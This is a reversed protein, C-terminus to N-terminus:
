LLKRLGNVSRHGAVLMLARKDASLEEASALFRRVGDHKLAYRHMDEALRQIADAERSLLRKTTEGPEIAEVVLRLHDLCLGFFHDEPSLEEAEVVRAINAVATREIDLRACCLDCTEASPRLKKMEAAYAVAPTTAVIQRLDVALRELLPSFGVCTGHPSAMAEYQWTHFACLGRHEVFKTQIDRRTSVDYQYRCLFDYMGRDIRDCISCGVFRPNGASSNPEAVTFLPRANPQYEAIRRVTARLRESVEEANPVDGLAEAIRAGMRMLFEGQRENLLFHALEERLHAVGSEIYRNGDCQSNAAMAERASVSFIQPSPDGFVALAQDQVHALVQDREEPSVIDHKNVVLFIRSKSSAAGQLLRLEEESLPSDYSTVLMLADAEPLFRETTRTNAEISSGLGPTDVFYFGRRLLEAPLEIRAVAVRQANGPNHQQTIYAPLEDLPIQRALPRSWGEHEIFACEKSGYSVTTIVSTLPVIGTPLRDTDLMANMLSSKGRSFRGVVAVNFRDAALRTFLDSFPDQVDPREQRLIVAANRLIAALEFKAWEYEALDM